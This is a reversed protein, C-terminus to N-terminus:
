GTTLWTLDTRIAPRDCYCLAVPWLERPICLARPPSCAFTAALCGNNALRVFMFPPAQDGGGGGWDEVGARDELSDNNENLKTVHKPYQTRTMDPEHKRTTYRMV